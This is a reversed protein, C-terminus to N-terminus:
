NSGEDKWFTKVRGNLKVCNNRIVLGDLCLSNNGSSSSSSSGSSSTTGDTRIIRSEDIVTIDTPLGTSVLSEYLTGFHKLGNMVDIAYQRETGATPQCATGTVSPLYTTFLVTGNVTTSSALAKETADSDVELKLKWGNDGITAANSGDITTLSSDTIASYSDYESQTMRGLHYDRISYFRDHTSHNSKPSVRDGSGIALNYFNAGDPVAFYSVDPPNYFRRNHTVEGNSYAKAGLSAIVGGAVLTSAPDGNTIDFRWIQGAMDGVYMRDTYGDDDTDLATVSSPIAHTMKAFAGSSTKTQQWLVTGKVADVIFLANGTSDGAESYAQSNETDDHGGGIVFVLYQPNQGSGDGIKIRALTPTSWSKSVLNSLDSASLSWMFKPNDKETVDLAYYTDGGRGQSFYLFVRDNDSKKIMGDNNADYRLVRINGDLTYHDIPNTAADAYVDKLKKLINEPIFSWLETGSAVDIAHLFGDNTSVYVVADNLNDTSTGSSSSSSSSSSNGVGYIVVAPQSHIPDGMVHRPVEDTLDGDDDGRTWDILEDRTPETASGTLNLLADTISSNSTKFPYSSLTQLSSPKNTGIYTYVNRSSPTPIQNAAGGATPDSGKGSDSLQQWFDKTTTTLYGTASDVASVTDVSNLTNGRGVIMGNRIKFKKINGPWHRTKSPSFIGVYLDELVQTKNFSNVAISPSTFTSSTNMINGVARDFADSLDYGDTASFADGGGARGADKLYDLAAGSNVNNGFGIFYTTVNQIQESAGSTGGISTDSALDKSHLLRSMEKLCLGTTGDYYVDTPNSTYTSGLISKWMTTTDSYCSSNSDLGDILSDAASDGNPLGDTLYVIYNQQCVNTIPSKYKTGGPSTRSADASPLSVLNSFSCNGGTVDTNCAKSNLGYKIDGGSYYLYAEYLTETLPTSNSVHMADITSKLAAANTTVDELPAVVMGGDGTSYRMIGVNMNSLSDILNKAATKVISIRTGLSTLSSDNAYAIYNGSYFVYSTKNPSNSSTYYNNTSTGGWYNSSSTTTGSLPYKGDATPTDDFECTIQDYLTTGSVSTLRDSWKYTVTTVGTRRNRSSTSTWRIANGTYKGTSAFAATAPHCYFDSSSIHNGYCTPTKTSSADVFYIDGANCGSGSTYDHSPSFTPPTGTVESGMSGSTDLILLLNPNVVSSASGSSFFVETDDAYTNTTGLLTTLCCTALCIIRAIRM